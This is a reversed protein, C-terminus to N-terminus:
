AQMRLDELRTRLVACAACDRKHELSGLGQEVQDLEGESLLDHLARHDDNILPGLM